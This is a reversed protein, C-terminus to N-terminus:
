AGLVREYVARTKAVMREESFREAVKNRANAGMKARLDGDALLRACAEVIADLDNDVLLGDEGHAIVETLGGVASAVVPVGASMALLAGSGLGESESLYLFLGAEGLDRELDRSLTLEIDLKRGAELALCVGKRPDGSWPAMLKAGQAPDLLPVGDYVIDIKDRAVGATELVGAVHRSVAIYRAARRYKERSWWNRKVPFAVRRAVVLPARRFMVGMSHAHADHAHVIDTGRAIHPLALLNLDRAEFGENRARRFLPGEERAMLVPQDGRERLGRLLRLAQWQGGRMERGTDIHLSKM